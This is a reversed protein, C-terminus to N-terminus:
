PMPLWTCLGSAVTTTPPISIPGTISSTMTGASRSSSTRRLSSRETAATWHLRPDFHTTRQHRQHHQCCRNTSGRSAHADRTIRRGGRWSRFHLRGPLLLRHGARSVRVSCQAPRQQPEGMSRTGCGDGWATCPPSCADRGPAGGTHPRTNLGDRRRAALPLGSIVWRWSM